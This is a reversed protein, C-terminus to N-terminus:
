PAKLFRWFFVFVFLFGNKFGKETKSPSNELLNELSLLIMFLGDTWVCYDEICLRWNKAFEPSIIM